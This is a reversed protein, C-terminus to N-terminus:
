LSGREYASCILCSDGIGVFPVVTSEVDSSQMESVTMRWPPMSVPCQSQTNRWSASKLRMGAGRSLSTNLSGCTM